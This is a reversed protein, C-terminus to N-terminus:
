RTVPEAAISATLRSVKQLGALTDPAVERRGHEVVLTGGEALLRGEGVSRVVEAVTEEAYPPDAFVLAFRRGEASLRRVARAVPMRLLEIAGEVDRRVGSRAREMEM